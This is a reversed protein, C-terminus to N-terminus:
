PYDARDLPLSVSAVWINAGDFALGNPSSAGVQGYRPVFSPFQGQIVGSDWVRLLAAKLDRSDGGASEGSSQGGTAAITLTNGSPTITVNTGAALTVADNLSNISKVVQGSALKEATVAGAALKATTVAGTALKQTTVSGDV